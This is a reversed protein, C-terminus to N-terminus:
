CSMLLSEVWPGYVTGKEAEDQLSEQRRPGDDCILCGRAEENPQERSVKGCARFVQYGLDLDSLTHLISVGTFHVIHYFTLPSLITRMKWEYIRMFVDIGYCKLDTLLLDSTFWSKFERRFNVMMNVKCTLNELHPM